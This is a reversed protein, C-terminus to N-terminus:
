NVKEMACIGNLVSGSEMVISPSTIDGNIKATSFLEIKSTARINGEVDGKILIINADIQAKIVANKEIYLDSASKITGSFKGKITLPKKCTLEGTFDIDESLITNMASEAVNKINVEAM